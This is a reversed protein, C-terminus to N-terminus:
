TGEIRWGLDGVWVGWGWVARQSRISGPYVDVGDGHRILRIDRL